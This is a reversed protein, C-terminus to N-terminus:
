MECGRFLGGPIATLGCEVTVMLRGELQCGRRIEARWAQANAHLSPQIM